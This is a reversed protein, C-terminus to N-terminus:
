ALPEERRRRRLRAAGALLLVLAVAAAAGTLRRADAPAGSGPAPEAAIRALLRPVYDEFRPYRGRNQQYEKLAERVPRTLYFGAEEEQVIAREAAEPGRKEEVYLTEAARLVQEYMFVRVNAYGMAEMQAAVPRFYRDLRDVRAGHRDIAPNVYSHGWEHVALKALDGAFVPANHSTGNERVVQYFHRRGEATTVTAGYGGAREVLDDSYEHALELDPLPGLHFIFAVPADATFGQQTLQEALQFARHDRYPGLYAKLARYYENGEGSPGFWQGWSTHALVGSLLELSPHVGATYRPPPAAAAAAFHHTGLLLFAALLASALRLRSPLM